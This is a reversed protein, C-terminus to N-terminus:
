IAIVRDRIAIAVAHARNAAGLKRFATQAHEDVTRKAIGLIEGIEWASKGAAAWTLVERERSTLFPQRDPLPKRLACVRDFAYLAMLHLGPKNRATLEPKPGSMSVGATNGAPGPIPVVFARGFGFDARLRMLEAARPERESDYHAENWEFPTATRRMHRIVPDDHVYKGKTYIKLWEAPWRMGLTVQEFRQDRNPLGMFLLTDLGVQGVVRQIADMVDDATAMRDLRDIL